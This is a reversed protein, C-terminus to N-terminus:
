VTVGCIKMQYATISFILNFNMSCNLLGLNTYKSFQNDKFMTRVLSELMVRSEDM